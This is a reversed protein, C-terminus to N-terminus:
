LKTRMHPPKSLQYRNDKNAQFWAAFDVGRASLEAMLRTAEKDYIKALNKCFSSKRSLIKAAKLEQLLELDTKPSPVPPENLALATYLEGYTEM